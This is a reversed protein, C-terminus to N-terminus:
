ESSAADGNDDRGTPRAADVLDSNSVQGHLVSRRLPDALQRATVRWAAVVEDAVATDNDSRAAVLATGLETSFEKLDDLDFVRLWAHEGLGRISPQRGAAVLHDLALHLGTLDKLGQLFTLSSEPIMVLSTGDKDRLRALGSRAEDIFEARNNNALDSVQFVRDNM